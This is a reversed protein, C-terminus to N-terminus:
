GEGLLFPIVFEQSKPGLGVLQHIMYFVVEILLEFGNEYHM